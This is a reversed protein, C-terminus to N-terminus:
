KPALTRLERYVDTLWAETAADMATPIDNVLFRRDQVRVEVRRTGGTRVDVAQLVLWSGSDNPLLQDKHLRWPGRVMIAYRVGGQLWGAQIVELGPDDSVAPLGVQMSRYAPRDEDAPPPTPSAGPAASATQFSAVSRRLSERIETPLPLREGPGFTAVETLREREVVLMASGRAPVVGDRIALYEPDNTIFLGRHLREEVWRAQLGAANSSVDPGSTSLNLTSRLEPFQTPLQPIPTIIGVPLMLCLGGAVTALTTRRSERPSGVGDLIARIRASLTSRHALGLAGRLTGFGIQHRALVVLDHAYDAPSRTTRVVWADSLQESVLRFARMAIWALPNFWHTARAVEWLALWQVDNQRVHALEHLMVHHQREAPWHVAEGPLIVVTRWVGCVFPMTVEDSLRVDVGSLNLVRSATAATVGLPGAPALQVARRVVGRLRLAGMGRISFLLLVGALYLMVLRRSAQSEPPNGLGEGIALPRAPEAAVPEVVPPTEADAAPAEVIAAELNSPPLLRVEAPVRLAVIPLLAVLYVAALAYLTRLTRARTPALIGLLLVGAVPILGRLGLQLLGDSDIM